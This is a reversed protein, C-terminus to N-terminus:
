KLYMYELAVSISKPVINRLTLKGAEVFDECDAIIQDKTFMNTRQIVMTSTYIGFRVHFKCTSGFAGFQLEGPDVEKEKM